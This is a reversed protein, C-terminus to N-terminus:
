NIKFFGIEDKLSDKNDNLINIQNKLTGIIDNLQETSAACEESSAANEESIASLNSITDLLTKSDEGLITISELINDVFTSNTAINNELTEFKNSTTNILKSQKQSNELVEKMQNLANLSNENLEKIIDSITKTLNNSQDALKRIEEAVVAFGRGFDGAHSAEISANLSLLNTQTAIDQISNIITNVEEISKNTKEVKDKILNISDVSEVNQKSLTKLSDASENKVNLMQNTNEKLNKSKELISEIFTSIENMNSSGNSCETAQQTAGQAIENVASNIGGINELCIKSSEKLIESGSNLDGVVNRINHIVMKLKDQLNKTNKYIQGLEDKRNLVKEDFSINLNGNTLEELTDNTKKMSKSFVICLCIDSILCFIFVFITRFFMSKQLIMLESTYQKYTESVQIWVGKINKYFSVYRVNNFNDNITFDNKPITPIDKNLLEKNTSALYKNDDFMSITVNYEKALEDLKKMSGENNNTDFTLDVTKVLVELKEKTDNRALVRTNNIATVSLVISIFLMPILCMLLIKSQVKMKM